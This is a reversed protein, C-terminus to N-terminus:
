ARVTPDPDLLEPYYIDPRFQSFEAPDNALVEPAIVFDDLPGTARSVPTPSIPGALVVVLCALCLILLHPALRRYM